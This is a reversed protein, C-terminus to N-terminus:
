QSANFAIAPEQDLTKPSVQENVTSRVETKMQGPFSLIFKPLLHHSLHASGYTMLLHRWLGKDNFVVQELGSNTWYVSIFCPKVM